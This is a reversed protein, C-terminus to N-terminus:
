GMGRIIVLIWLGIVATVMETTQASLAVLAASWSHFLVYPSFCPSAPMAFKINRRRIAAVILTLGVPLSVPWLSANFTQAIGM